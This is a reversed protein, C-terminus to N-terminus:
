ILQKLTEVLLDIEDFTNYIYFSARASGEVGLCEHLPQACHHGSRIAINEAEDLFAAVEHPSMGEINFAIIGGKKTPDEPGYYHFKDGLEKLRRLAYETMKIEHERVWDMGIRKLYKVAAAFGFAGAINPTGAEFRMPMPAWTSKQTTVKEIMSGGGLLPYKIQPLADPSVYLAGIGTPGLMKHASFAFFDCKIKQVDIKMHPASQAGDVLCLAGYDHAIKCIEAVPNISGLVNSVHVISVIRTKKSITNELAEIDVFWDKMPIYKIKVGFREGIIQWPVINSHHEMLSVIVEDGEKWDIGYAVYNIAETTNKLFAIDNGSKAGIFDGVIDHAEEYKESAKTSLYHIGRHVNASLTEYYEKIANIVQVPTLSTATNDLYVYPKGDRKLYLVPFDKRIKEVDM